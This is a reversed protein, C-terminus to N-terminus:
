AACCACAAIETRNATADLVPTRASAQYRAALRRAFGRALDMTATAFLTIGSSRRDNGNTAIRALRQGAAEELMHNRRDEALAYGVWGSSFDHM